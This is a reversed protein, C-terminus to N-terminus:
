DVETENPDDELPPPDDDPDNEVAPQPQSARAATAQQELIAVARLSRSPPVFRLGDPNVQSPHGRDRHLDPHLDPYLDPHPHPPPPDFHLDPTPTLTPSLSPSPSLSLSPSPSTNSPAPHAGLVKGSTMMFTMKQLSVVILELQQAGAPAGAAQKGQALATQADDGDLFLPKVHAGNVLQLLGHCAFLPLAKGESWVVEEKTPLSAALALDAARPIIRASLRNVAGVASGLGTVHMMIAGIGGTNESEPHSAKWEKLKAACDSAEMFFFPRNDDLRAIVVGGATKDQQVMTFVPVCDLRDMLDQPTIPPAVQPAQAAAAMSGAAAASDSIRQNLASDPNSEAATAASESEGKPASDPKSEAAPTANESKSKTAPESKSKAASKKSKAAPAAAAAAPPASRTWRRFAEGLVLTVLLVLIWVWSTDAEAQVAAAVDVTEAAVDATESEASEM